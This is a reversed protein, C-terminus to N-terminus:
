LAFGSVVLHDIPGIMGEQPRMGGEIQVSLWRSLEQAQENETITNVYCQHAAQMWAWEESTVDVVYIDTDEPITEWM